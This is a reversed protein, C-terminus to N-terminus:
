PLRATESESHALASVAAGGMRLTAAHLEEDDIRRADEDVVGGVALVCAVEMGLEGALSFLTAAQLEVAIAGAHLWEERHAGRGYFLDTTAVAETLADPELAASLAATLPADADVYGNAGLGRSTGDAALARNAVVLRGARLSPELADCTGIRIARRVGLRALEGLVIAGSPGGLGTSQITLPQGDETEGYYGWLGRHHNSMRPASLLEQALALARGPDGPLLAADAIPASPRLHIAVLHSVGHGAGVRIGRVAKADRRGRASTHLSCVERGADEVQEATRAEPSV